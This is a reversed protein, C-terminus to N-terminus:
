TRDGRGAKPQGCGACAPDKRLAVTRFRGGLADYIMLRGAMGEGIRAIEKVIELAQLCGMVGALAGVIGAGSCTPADAPPAPVLCRYCPQDPLYPKFTALQGQFERVAASVLIKQAAHCTDAILFRTPFDDTCDAVIDYGGILAPAHAADLRVDHPEIRVHPNIDHAARLASATKPQGVDASRHAIQRQLNSLAIRDHDVIGITGVGAAALYLIVPSGLGGAGVVLVRAAKLKMQGAGGIERLVIHRAYRDLEEDSLAM